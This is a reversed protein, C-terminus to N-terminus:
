NKVYPGIIWTFQWILISLAFSFFAVYHNRVTKPNLIQEVNTYRKFRSFANYLLGCSALLCLQLLFNFVAFVTYQELKLRTETIAALINIIVGTILLVMLKKNDKDPDKGQTVLEYKISLSWYKMAFIWHVLYSILDAVLALNEYKHNLTRYFNVTATPLIQEDAQIFNKVAEFVIVLATVYCLSGIFLSFQLWCTFGYVKYRFVNILITYAFFLTNLAFLCVSFLLLFYIYPQNSILIYQTQQPDMM